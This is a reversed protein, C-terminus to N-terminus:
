CYHRTRWRGRRKQRQRKSEATEFLAAGLTETPGEDEAEVEWDAAGDTLAAVLTDAVADVVGAEETELAGEELLAGELLRTAEVVFDRKGERV